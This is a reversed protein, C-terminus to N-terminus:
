CMRVYDISLTTITGPLCCLSEAMCSNKRRLRGGDLSGCLMLCREMYLLDKNTIWKLYLLISMLLNLFFRCAHKLYGSGEKDRRKVM